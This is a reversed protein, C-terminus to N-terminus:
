NVPIKGLSDSLVILFIKDLCTDNWLQSPNARNKFWDACPGLSTGSGLVCSCGTERYHIESKVFTGAGVVGAFLLRWFGGTRSLFGWWGCIHKDGLGVALLDM